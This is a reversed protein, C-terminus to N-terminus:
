SSPKPMKKKPRELPQQTGIIIEVQERDKDRRNIDIAITQERVFKPNQNLSFECERTDNAPGLSILPRPM